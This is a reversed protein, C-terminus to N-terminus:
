DFFSYAVTNMPGLSEVTIPQFLRTRELASLKEVKHLAAADRASANVYSKSSDVM